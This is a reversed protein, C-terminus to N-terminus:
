VPRLNPVAMMYPADRRDVQLREGAGSFRYQTRTFLGSVTLATKGVYQFEIVQAMPLERAEPWPAVAQPAQMMAGNWRNRGGNCCKM